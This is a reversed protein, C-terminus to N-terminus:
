ECEIKFAVAYEGQLQPTRVQLGEPLEKWNILQNSGVVSVDKIKLTSPLSSAAFAELTLVEGEKPVGLTIAYITNGKTTYRVDKWSYKVKLFERHNAFDGEPQTTPGQGYTYWPRTGYIAEGNVNLWEGISFLIDQQEQPIVGDARPSVNLLLVGNKSVVDVLVDILDKAKKLEMNDTYSWSDTSITEDTMWLHPEINQKRSKELNEISVNLPLDGQKRCIVVEKGKTQSERIYYEAFKYLYEEPIADLWSDFWIVDPSYTDIVEKLEGFWIPEYFEKPTVNGYLLRLMPNDSTTPIGEIYPFHSDWMDWFEPNAPRNKDNKYRQLLHTHHFTTVLKMGHERVERAIEGLIDKEPGMLKANWPTIKSDWMAFGDHHQAVPGAFRAGARYFLDVWERANFNEATFLPILADYGFEKPDGYKEKHFHYEKRSEMFMHRPYWEYSFAPVSYVGWHFYIGFKADKLWEAEATYNNERSINKWNLKYNEYQASGPM